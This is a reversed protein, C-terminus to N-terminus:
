LQALTICIPVICLFYIASFLYIVTPLQTATRDVRRIVSAYLTECYNLTIPVLQIKIYFIISLDIVYSSMTM